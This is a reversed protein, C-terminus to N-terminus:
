LTLLGQPLVVGPCGEKHTLQSANVVLVMGGARAIKEYFTGNVCKGQACDGRMPGTTGLVVFRNEKHGRQIDKGKLKGDRM